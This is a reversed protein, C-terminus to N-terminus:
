LVTESLEYSYKQIVPNSLIKECIERTQAEAAAQSLGADLSLEFFRGATIDQINGYGLSGLAHQITKAEPDLIGPKYTVIIKAKWM